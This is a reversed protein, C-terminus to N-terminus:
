GNSGEHWRLFAALVVSQHLIFRHDRESARAEEATAPWTAAIRELREVDLVRRVLPSHAARAVADLTEERRLEAIAYWEPVQKGRRNQALLDPPLRDALVRRALRRRVGGKAFQEEPLGLTFEVLRRDTFPDLMEYPLTIRMQALQDTRGEGHLLAWRLAAGRHLINRTNDHAVTDSHARYAIEALFEPRFAVSQEGFSGGAKRRLRARRLALPEIAPGIAQRLAHLVPKGETRAIRATETLASILRGQRVREFALSNGGWSLTANGMNGVLLTRAGIAAAHAHVPEFWTRAFANTPVGVSASEWQSESDRAARHLPDLVVWDLNPYLDAVQGAFRREDFRTYPHAAGAVRTIATIRAHPMLRAATATIAASDYGGSLMTAIQGTGPLRSAVARDLLERAADAYDADRRFRVPKVGELTWYRATECQGPTFTATGGAPVRRIERYLTREPDDAGGSYHDALGLEDLANSGGPIALLLHIATAFALTAGDFRYFLARVGVADRALVVRRCDGDWLAAAFEGHIREFAGAGRREVMAALAAGDDRPDGPERADLRADAILLANSALAFPQPAGTSLWRPDLRAFAWGEGARVRSPAFGGASKKWREVIARDIPGGDLRVIGAFGSM